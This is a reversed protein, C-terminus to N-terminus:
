RARRSECAMALQAFVEEAGPADKSPFMMAFGGDESVVAREVITVPKERPSRSRRTDRYARPSVSRRARPSVSRSGRAVARNNQVKGDPHRTRPLLIDELHVMHLM